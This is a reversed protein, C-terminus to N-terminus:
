NTVLIADRIRPVFASGGDGIGIFTVTQGPKLDAIKSVETSRFFVSIYGVVIGPGQLDVHDRQVQYVVGTIRLTKGRYQNDASIQNTQYAQYLTSTDIVIANRIREAEALRQAEEREVAAQRQAEQREAEALRQAEQRALAEAQRQTEQRTFAEPTLELNVNVKEPTVGFLSGKFIDYFIGFVGIAGIGYGAVKYGNNINFDYDDYSSFFLHSGVGVGAALFNLWFSHNFKRKVTITQPMFDTKNFELIYDDAKKLSMDYPTTVTDIVNGRRDHIIVTSNETNTNLKITKGNGFFSACGTFVGSFLCVCTLIYVSTKM